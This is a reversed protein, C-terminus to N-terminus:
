LSMQTFLTEPLPLLLKLQIGRLASNQKEQGGEKGGGKRGEKRGGETRGKKPIVNGFHGKICACTKALAKSCKETGGHAGAKRAAEVGM